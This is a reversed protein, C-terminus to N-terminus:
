PARASVVVWSDDLAIEARASYTLRLDSAAAPHGNLLIRTRAFKGSVAGGETPAITMGASDLATIIGKVHRHTNARAGGPVLVGLALLASTGVM